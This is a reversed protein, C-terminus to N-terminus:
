RTMSASRGWVCVEKDTGFFLRSLDKCSPDAEPYAALLGRLFRTAEDRDRIISPALFALRYRQREKTSSFSEYSLALPLGCEFARQVADTVDLPRHGRAVMAEDNDVDIFFLEQAKWDEARRRGDCVGPLVTRGRSIMAALEPLTVTVLCEPRVIRPTVGGDREPKKPFEVPDVCATVTRGGFPDDSGTGRFDHLEGRYLSVYRVNEFWWM